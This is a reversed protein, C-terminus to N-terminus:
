VRLRGDITELQTVLDNLRHYLKEFQDEVHSRGEGVVLTSTDVTATILENASIQRASVIELRKQLDSIQKEIAHVLGSVQDLNDLLISNTNEM